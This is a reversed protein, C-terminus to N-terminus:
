GPHVISTQSSRTEANRNPYRDGLNPARRRAEELLANQFGRKAASNLNGLRVVDVKTTNVGEQHVFSCVHKWESMPQKQLVRSFEAQM